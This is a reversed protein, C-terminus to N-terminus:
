EVLRWFVIPDHATRHRENPLAASVWRSEWEAAGYETELFAASVAEQAEQFSALAIARDLSIASRSYSPSTFRVPRQGRSRPNFIINLAREPVGERRALRYVKRSDQDVVARSIGLERAAEARTVGSCLLQFLRRLHEYRKDATRRARRKRGFRDNEIARTQPERSESHTTQHTPTRGKIILM